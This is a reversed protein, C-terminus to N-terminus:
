MVRVKSKYHREERLPIFLYWRIYQQLTVRRHTLMGELPSYFDEQDTWAVFVPNPSLDTEMDEWSNLVLHALFKGLLSEKDYAPQQKILEYNLEQFFVNLELM